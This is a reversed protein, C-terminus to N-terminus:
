YPSQPIWSHSPDSTNSGSAGLAMEAEIPCHLEMSVDTMLPGCHLSPSMTHVTLTYVDGALDMVQPCSTCLELPLVLSMSPPPDYPSLELVTSSTSDFRTLLPRDIPTQKIDTSFYLSSPFNFLPLRRALIMQQRTMTHALARPVM